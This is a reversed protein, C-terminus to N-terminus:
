WLLLLLVVLGSCVLFSWCGLSSFLQFTLSANGNLHRGLPKESVNCVTGRFQLEECNYQENSNKTSEHFWSVLVCWCCFM